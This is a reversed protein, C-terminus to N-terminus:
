SRRDSLNVPGVLVAGVGGDAVDMRVEVSGALVGVATFVIGPPTLRVGMGAPPIREIVVIVVLPFGVFRHNKMVFPVFVVLPRKVFGPPHIDAAIGVGLAAGHGGVAMATARSRMIVFRAAVRLPVAPRTEVVGATKSGAIEVVIVIKGRVPRFREVAHRVAIGARVRGRVVDLPVLVVQRAIEGVVVVRPRALARIRAAIAVRVRGRVGVGRGDRFVSEAERPVAPIDLGALPNVDM